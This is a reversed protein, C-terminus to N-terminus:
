PILSVDLTVNAQVNVTGAQVPTPSGLALVVGAQSGSSATYGEQIVQVAGTRMGLGSAMADARTKAQAVALKLAQIRAPTDDKLGFQLSTVQNAGAQIGTDIIRGVISLDSTTVQITNSATYGVLLPQQGQQYNYNPALSYSITKIDALPGLLTNLQNLVSTVANANQASAEQATTAQNVVSLNIRAQDPKVAVTGEGVSHVFPIRNSQSWAPHALCALIGIKAICAKM